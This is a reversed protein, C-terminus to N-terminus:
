RLWGVVTLGIIILAVIGALIQASRGGAPFWIGLEDPSPRPLWYPILALLLLVGLPILIGFVFPDGLRLMQQVWLFFWPAHTDTIAASGAEIPPALPAPILLALGLLVISAWLM